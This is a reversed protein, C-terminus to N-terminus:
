VRARPNLACAAWFKIAPSSTSPSPHVKNTLQQKLKQQRLWYGSTHDEDQSGRRLNLNIKQRREKAGAAPQATVSDHLLM